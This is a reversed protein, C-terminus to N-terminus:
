NWLKISTLLSDGHDTLGGTIMPNNPYTSIMSYNCGFTVSGVEQGKNFLVVKSFPINTGCEGVGFNLPNNIVNLLLKTKDICLKSVNKIHANIAM